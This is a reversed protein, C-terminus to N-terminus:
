QVTIRIQQTQYPFPPQLTFEYVGAVCHSFEFDAAITTQIEQRDYVKTGEALPLSVTDLGDPVIEFDTQETILPRAIMAGDLLYFKACDWNGEIIAQNTPDDLQSWIDILPVDCTRLVRGSHIDVVSIDPM